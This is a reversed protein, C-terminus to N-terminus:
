GVGLLAAVGREFDGRPSSRNQLEAARGPEPDLRAPVPWLTCRTLHCNKVESPQHCCCDLCKGRMGALIAAKTTM